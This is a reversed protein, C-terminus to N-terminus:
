ITDQQRAGLGKGRGPKDALGELGELLVRREWKSVFRRSIGVTDALHSIPVRDALLLIMRGRRARGARITTSRQWALLRQREDATRPMTLATKRRHAMCLGGFPWSPKTHALAKCRRPIVADRPKVNRM